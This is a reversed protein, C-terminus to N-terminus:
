SGKAARGVQRKREEHLMLVLLLEAYTRQLAYIMGARGDLLGGRLLLCFSLAALPSLPTHKRLRDVWSLRQSPTALLTAAEIRLYKQQSALWRELPKRDDHLLPLGLPAVEGDIM